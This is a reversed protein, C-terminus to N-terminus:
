ISLNTAVPKEVSSKNVASHVSEFDENNATQLISNREDNSNLTCVGKMIYSTHLRLDRKVVFPIYYKGERQPPTLAVRLSDM